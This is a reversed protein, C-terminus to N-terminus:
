PNMSQWRDIELPNYVITGAPNKKFHVGRLWNRSRYKEIQSRSFGYRAVLISECVWQGPEVFVSEDANYIIEPGTPTKRVTPM